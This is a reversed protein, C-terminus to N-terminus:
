IATRTHTPFTANPPDHMSMCADLVLRATNGMYWMCYFTCCVVAAVPHDVDHDVCDYRILRQPQSCGKSRYVEHLAEMAAGGDLPLAKSSSARWPWSFARGGRGEGDYTTIDSVASANHAAHATLM